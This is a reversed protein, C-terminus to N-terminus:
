ATAMPCYYFADDEGTTAPRRGSPETFSTLQQTQAVALYLVLPPGTFTDLGTTQITFPVTKDALRRLAVDLRDHDYHVAGQFTVHPWPVLEVVRWSFVVQKRKDWIARVGRDHADDCLSAVAHM